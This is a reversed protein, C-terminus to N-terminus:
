LIPVAETSRRSPPVPGASRREEILDALIAVGDDIEDPSAAAYTLRLTHRGDTNAHFMEGQGYFVGRARAAALLEAPDLERPLTVWLFLGGAPRTWAVQPPMHRALAAIMRDRRERYVPLARALHRDLGGDRLFRHLAAQLVPSTGCDRIQKLAVLRQMVPPPAVAWGIRLGPMLKKSFTSLYITREGGQLAHLTPPSAGSFRLGAAWDDELVVCRHRAALALLERRRDEGMVATTPNHFSPQVYLLRPHHRELAVALSEPRMGQEDVQVGVVRAGISALVSLAGTYTPEEIVIADGRELFTHFVLDIAQQAGHTVLVDEPDVPSGEERMRAAIWERLPQHGATPGYVLSHPGDERLTEAMARHFEEVPLLERAPYSGAFSIGGATNATRYFSLLGGVKPGEVARSFTTPWERDVAPSDSVAEEPAPAVLFTGRGTHSEVWGGSALHEYAAIVTQRNVGLQRALDRTPPLRRGAALRGDRAAARVGDAIQRYVPVASDLDIRLGRLPM